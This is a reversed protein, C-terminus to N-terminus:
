EKLSTLNLKLTKLVRTYLGSDFEIVVDCIGKNMKQNITNKHKLFTQKLDLLVNLRHDKPLSDIELVAREILDISEYFQEESLNKQIQYKYKKFRLIVNKMIGLSAEIRKKKRIVTM